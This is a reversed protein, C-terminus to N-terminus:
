AQKDSLELWRDSKTELNGIIEGLEDSLKMMEDSDEIGKEFKNNIEAKRKELKEIDVELIGFERKENFSMKQPKDTSVNKPKSKKEVEKKVAVAEIKDGGAKKWDRWQSYNGPFDKISLKDKELVFLHDVLKDM